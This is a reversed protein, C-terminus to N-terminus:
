QLEQKRAGERIFLIAMGTIIVVALSIWQTITLQLVRGLGYELNTTYWFDAVFHILSAGIIFASTLYGSARFRYSKQRLLYFVMFLFLYGFSIYLAWPHLYSDGTPNLILWPYNATTELGSMYRSLFVGIYGFAMGLPLIYLYSDLFRLWTVKARKIVSFGELYFWGAIMAGLYGGVIHVEAEYMVQQWSFTTQWDLSVPDTWVLYALRAGLIGGIFGSAILGFVDDTSHGKRKAQELSLALVLFLAMGTFIAFWPVSSDPFNIIELPLMDFM